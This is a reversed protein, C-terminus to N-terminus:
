LLKKIKREETEKAVLIDVLESKKMSSTGKIGLGKVIAKLDALALTEYKERM